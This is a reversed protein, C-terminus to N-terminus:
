PGNAKLLFSNKGKKDTLSSALSTPIITVLALLLKLKAPNFHANIMVSDTLNFSFIFVMGGATVQRADKNPATAEV